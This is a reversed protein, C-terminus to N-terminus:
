SKNYPTTLPTTTDNESRGRHADSPNRRKNTTKGTDSERNICSGWNASLGNDERLSTIREPIEASPPLKRYDGGIPEFPENKALMDPIMGNTIGSVMDNTLKKRKAWALSCCQKRGWKATKCQGPPLSEKMSIDSTPFNGFQTSSSEENTQEALRYGISNGRESHCMGVEHLIRDTKMQERGQDRQRQVRRQADPKNGRNANPEKRKRTNPEKGKHANSSERKRRKQQKIPILLLCHDSLLNYQSKPLSIGKNKQLHLLIANSIHVFHSLLKEVSDVKLHNEIEYTKMPESHSETEEEEQQKEEEKENHSGKLFGGRSYARNMRCSECNDNFLFNPLTKEMHNNNGSIIINEKKETGRPNAGNTITGSPLTHYNPPGDTMGKPPAGRQIDKGQTDRGQSSGGQGSRGEALSASGFQPYVGQSVEREPGCWNTWKVSNVPLRRGDPVKAGSSLLPVKKAGQRPPVRECRQSSGRSCNYKGEGQPCEQRKRKRGARSHEGNISSGNHAEGRGSPEDSGIPASGSRKEESLERKVEAAGGGEHGMRPVGGDAGREAEGECNSCSPMSYSGNLLENFTGASQGYIRHIKLAEEFVGFEYSLKWLMNINFFPLNSICAPPKLKHTLINKCTSTKERYVRRILELMCRRGKAGLQRCFGPYYKLREVEKQGKMSNEQAVTPDGDHAHEVRRQTERLLSVAQGNQATQPNLEAQGNQATQGNRGSQGNQGAQETVEEGKPQERQKRGETPPAREGTRRGEGTRARRHLSIRMIIDLLNKSHRFTEQSWRQYNAHGSVYNKSENIIYNLAPIPVNLNLFLNKNMKPADGKGDYYRSLSGTSEKLDNELINLKLVGDVM